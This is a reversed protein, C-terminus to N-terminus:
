RRLALYRGLVGFGALCAAGDLLGRLGGDFGDDQVVGALAIAVAV